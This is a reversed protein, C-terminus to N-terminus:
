WDRGGPFPYRLLAPGPRQGRGGPVCLGLDASATLELYRAELDRPWISADSLARALFDAYRGAAPDYGGRRLTDHLLLALVHMGGDAETWRPAPEGRTNRGLQTNLFQDLAQAADEETYSAWTNYGAAPDRGTFRAALFPDAALADLRDQVPHDKPWPPHLLEHVAINLVRDADYRIDTLFRTGTVRIGHPAAWRLVCLEVARAEFSVGTHQEVLPVLDYAAFSDSLEGCRRRLDAEAHEAWWEALGAARLGELVALLAPRVSRFLRDDAENWRRSTERMASVLLEPDAVAAILGDLSETARHTPGAAPSTWLALFAPLPKAARDAIEDRLVSLGDHADQGASAFRDQWWRADREHRSTYFPLGALLPILCVTDFWLSPQIVWSSEQREDAM